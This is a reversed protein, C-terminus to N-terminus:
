LNSDKEEIKQKKIIKEIAFLLITLQSQVIIQNSAVKSMKQLNTLKPLLYNELFAKYDLNHNDSNVLKEFNLLEEQKKEAYTKYYSIKEKEQALAIKEKILNQYQKKSFFLIILIVFLSFIQTLLTQDIENFFAFFGCFFLFLWIAVTKYSFFTTLFIILYLLSFFPSQLIGTDFILVLSSFNLCAIQLIFSLPSQKKRSFKRILFLIVLGVLFVQLNYYNLNSNDTSLNIWFFSFVFSILLILIDRIRKM